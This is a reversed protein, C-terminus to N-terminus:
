ETIDHKQKIYETLRDALDLLYDFRKIKEKEAPIADYGYKLGALAGSLSANTDADGGLDIVKYIADAANDTHLFGWLGAAMSKRTWCMTDEDDIRLSEIDGDYAMKLYSLIRPDETRGLEELVSYEAERDDYLLSHTMKAIVMASATCRTDDYTMLMLNRTHRDLQERDSTLGTVVARQIGENSAEEVGYRQWANHCVAIPHEIWGSDKCTVRVPTALDQVDEDFWGKFTRALSHLNYGDERIICELMRTLVETDNTWERRGFQSRHADRIIDDLDRLKDPYYTEIENRNMFETGLGLADGLAFGALAGRIKDNLKM